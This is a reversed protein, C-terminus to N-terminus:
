SGILYMDAAKPWKKLFPVLVDKSFHFRISNKNGIKQILRPYGRFSLYGYKNPDGMLAIPEIM